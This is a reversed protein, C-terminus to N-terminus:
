NGGLRRFSDVSGFTPIFLGLIDNWTGLSTPPVWVIDNPELYFSQALVFRAGQSIDFRFIKAREESQNNAVLPQRYVVLRSWDYGLGLVSSASLANALSFGGRSLNIAQLSGRPSLVYATNYREAFFFLHDDKKLVYNQSYDGRVLLAELDIVIREGQRQLVTKQLATEPDVRQIETVVDLITTPIEELTIRFDGQDGTAGSVYAYSGDYEAVIIWVIPDEIYVALKEQILERAEETTLSAVEIEGVLPVRITGDVSVPVLMTGNTWRAGGVNSIDVGHNINSIQDLRRLDISFEPHRWIIIRLTNGPAIIHKYAQKESQRAAVAELNVAHDERLERLLSPTVDLLETRQLFADIETQSAAMLPPTDAVPYGAVGCANLLTIVTLLLPIKSVSVVKTHTAPM